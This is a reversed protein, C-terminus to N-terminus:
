KLYFVLEISREPPSVKPEDGRSHHGWCAIYRIHLFYEEHIEDPDGPESKQFNNQYNIKRRINQFLRHNFLCSAGTYYGPYHAYEQLSHWFYLVILMLFPYKTTFLIILIFYRFRM